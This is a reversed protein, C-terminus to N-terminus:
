LIVDRLHFKLHTTIRLQRSKKYNLKVGVFSHNACVIFAMPSLSCTVHSHLTGTAAVQPVAANLLVSLVAGAVAASLVDM